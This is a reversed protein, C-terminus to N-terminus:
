KLKRSNLICKRSAIENAHLKRIKYFFTKFGFLSVNSIIKFIPPIFKKFINYRSNFNIMFSSKVYGCFEIVTDTIICM